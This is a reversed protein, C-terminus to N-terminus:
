IEMRYEDLNFTDSNAKKSKTSGGRNQASSIIKNKVSNTEKSQAKTFFTDLNFNSSTDDYYSLFNILQVLAKPNNAVAQLTQDVKGSQWAQKVNKRHSEKWPQADLETSISNFFEQQQQILQEQQAQAQALKQEAQNTKVSKAKTLLQDSDELADLMADLVNDEFQSSYQKKLYTRASLNDNISEVQADNEEAQLFDILDARTLEPKTLSFEYLRKFEEGSSEIIEQRIKNPLETKYSNIESEFDEWSAVEKEPLIGKSQFLEYVGKIVEVDDDEKEEEEEKEQQKEQEPELIPEQQKLEEPNEKKVPEDLDLLSFDPLFDNNTVDDNENIPM